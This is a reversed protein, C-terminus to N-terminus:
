RSFADQIAAIASDIDADSLDRHTTARITHPGFAVMLVNRSRLTDLVEAAPVTGTGFMVINSEVSEPDVTFPTQTAIAVALRRANAHDRSLGDRHHTLAHLGAAALIGVQRM